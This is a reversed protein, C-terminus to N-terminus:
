SPTHRALRSSRKPITPTLSKRAYSTLSLLPIIGQEMLIVAATLSASAYNPFENLLAECLLVAEQPKQQKRLLKARQLQSYAKKLRSDNKSIM